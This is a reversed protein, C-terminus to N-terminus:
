KPEKIQDSNKKSADKRQVQDINNASIRALKMTGKVEQLNECAAKLFEESIECDEISVYSFAIASTDQEEWEASDIADQIVYKGNKVAQDAKRKVVGGIPDCPGKGHGADM